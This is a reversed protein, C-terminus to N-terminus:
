RFALREVNENLSCAIECLPRPLMPVTRDVLYVTTSRREAEDDVNTGPTVFHSVDAIHVGIEVRGDPLSKIHLADDLDKATTPDITFIRENRYDRRGKMMEKTPEWGLEGDQNPTKMRGSAVADEVDKLVSPAFDGHNVGYDMLLAMTEDEVNCTQGMIRLNTCPPWKDMNSWSGYVYEACCLNQQLSDKEDKGNQTKMSMLRVKTDPPTMFRPLCRSNPVFLCRNNNNGQIPMITGVITRTPKHNKDNYRQHNGEGLSPNLESPQNSLSSIKPPIIHIVKGVYQNCDEEKEQEYQNTQNKNKSKKIVNVIPDWLSRQMHDYADEGLDYENYDENNENNSVFQSTDEIHLTNMNMDTTLDQEIDDSNGNNIDKALNDHGDNGSGSEPEKKEENNLSDDNTKKTAVEDVTGIIEVFVIDGDLARNRNEIIPFPLVCAILLIFM